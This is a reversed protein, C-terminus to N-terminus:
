NLIKKAISCTTLTVPYYCATLDMNKLNNESVFNTQKKLGSDFLNISPLEVFEDTQNLITSQGKKLFNLLM